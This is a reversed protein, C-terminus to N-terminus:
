KSPMVKSQFSESIWDPKSNSFGFADLLQPQPVENEVHICIPVAPLAALRGLSRQEARMALRQLLWRALVVRQQAQFPAQLNGVIFQLSAKVIQAPL